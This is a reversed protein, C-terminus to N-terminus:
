HLFLEEFLYRARQPSLNKTLTLYVKLTPFINVVGPGIDKTDLNLYCNVFKDILLKYINQKLDKIFIFNSQHYPRLFIKEDNAKYKLHDCIEDEYLPGSAPVASLRGSDFVVSLNILRLEDAFERFSVHKLEDKNSKGIMLFSDLKSNVTDSEKFKISSFYSKYYNGHRLLLQYGLNMIRLMMKKNLGFKEYGLKIKSNFKEVCRFVFKDRMSCFSLIHDIIDVPISSFTFSKM